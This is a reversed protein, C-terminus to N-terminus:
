LESIINNQLVTRGQIIQGQVLYEQSLQSLM